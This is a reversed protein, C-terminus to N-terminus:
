QALMAFVLLALLLLFTISGFIERQATNMTEANLNM